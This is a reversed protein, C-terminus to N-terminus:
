SKVVITKAAMDGLRQHKETALMLVIGVLYAFLGDVMYLINRVIAGGWGPVGGSESVVKIGLARKGLTAGSTAEFYSKYVISIGIALIWMLSYISDVASGIAILVFWVVFLIIGDILFAGIRSM